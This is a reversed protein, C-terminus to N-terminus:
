STARLADLVQPLVEGSPGRLVIQAVSSIPTPEPNVEIVVAGARAALLPLSAAPQVIGSTGVVLMLDCTEAEQWARSLAAEPLNEGFWVVDPRVYGQQCHPCNPAQEDEHPLVALDILTPNGQCNDLCRFRRISGHLEVVDSSGAQAHLGDINQTLVVVRPLLSELAAIAEHGPNPRVAKLLHFRMMYWSWVRDPNRLFAERTALDEPRYEAWLGTQADRFTAVGSEKSIGAGSSVVVRQATRLALAARQISEELRM